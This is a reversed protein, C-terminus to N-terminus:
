MGFCNPQNNSINNSLAVTYYRSLKNKKSRVKNPSQVISIIGHEKQMDPVNETVSKTEDVTNNEGENPSQVISIIGHEKPEKTRKKM